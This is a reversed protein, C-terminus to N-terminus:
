RSGRASARNGRLQVGGPTACRNSGGPEHRIRRPRDLRERHCGGQDRADGREVERAGYQDGDREGDQQGEQDVRHDGPEHAQAQPPSQRHAEDHRHQEGREAPHRPDEGRLERLERGADRTVAVVQDGLDRVHAVHAAAARELLRLARHGLDGLLQLLVGGRRGRGAPRRGRHHDARLRGAEPLQGGQDLPQAARRRDENEHDEHQDLLRVKPISEDPEDAVLPEGRGGACQVLGPVADAAVQEHLRDDVRAEAQADRHAEQQEAHGVGQEPAEQGRHQAEDGVHADPEGRQEHDDEREGGEGGPMLREEHDADEHEEFRQAGQPQLGQEVHLARPDGLDREEARDGEPGPEPARHPQEEGCRERHAQDDEGLVDGAQLEDADQHAVRRGDVRGDGVVLAQQRLVLGLRRADDRFVRLVMGELRHVVIEDEGREAARPAIPPM